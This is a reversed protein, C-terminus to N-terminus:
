INFFNIVNKFILFSIFNIINNISNLTFLNKKDDNIYIIKFRKKLMYERIENNIKKKEFNLNM